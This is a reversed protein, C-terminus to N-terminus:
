GVENCNTTPRPGWHPDDEGRIVPQTKSAGEAGEKGEASIQDLSMLPLQEEVARPQFPESLRFESPRRSVCPAPRRVEWPRGGLASVHEATCGRDILLQCRQLKPKPAKMIPHPNKGNARPQVRPDKKTM